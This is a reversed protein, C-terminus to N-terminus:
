MISEKIYKCFVANQKNVERIHHKWKLLPFPGGDNPTVLSSDSIDRAVGGSGLVQSVVAALRPFSM